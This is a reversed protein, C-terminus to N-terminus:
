LQLLTRIKTKLESLSIKSVKCDIIKKMSSTDSCPSFSVSIPRFLGEGEEYYVNEVSTNQALIPNSNVQSLGAVYYPNLTRSGIVVNNGEIMM